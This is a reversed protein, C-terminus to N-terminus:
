SNSRQLAWLVLSALDAAADQQQPLEQPLRKLLRLVHQIYLRSLLRARLLAAGGRIKEIALEVDGAERLRRQLLPLLERPHEQAALLLPGTIVGAKLDNNAPKGLAQSSALLDLEDDYLQFALGVSAGFEHAWDVWERRYGGLLAMCACSEAMLSATKHYTKALMTDFAKSIDCSNSLAQLLEGKVLSEVM